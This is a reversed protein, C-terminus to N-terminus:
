SFQYLYYGMPQIKLLQLFLHFKYCEQIELHHYMYTSALLHLLNLFELHCVDLCRSAQFYKNFMNLYFVLM